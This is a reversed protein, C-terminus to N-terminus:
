ISPSNEFLSLWNLENSLSRWNKNRTRLRAYSFAPMALNIGGIRLFRLAFVISFIALIIVPMFSAAAPIESFVRTLSLHHDIARLVSSPCISQDIFSSPCHGNLGFMDASVITPGLAGFIAVLLFAAACFFLAKRRFSLINLNDVFSM